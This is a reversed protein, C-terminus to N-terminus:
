FLTNYNFNNICIASIDFSTTLARKIGSQLSEINNKEVVYGNIGEYIISNFDVCNTAIVPVGLTLAELVVNPFGETRSSMIFLDSAKIYPYPNPKHGMLIINEHLGNKDILSQLYDRYGVEYREEGLIRVIIHNNSNILPIVAKILIDFGKISYLAGVAIINFESKSINEAIPEQSQTRVYDKDILNFIVKVKQPSLGYSKIIDQRMYETQAIVMDMEKYLLPYIYHLLKGKISTEYIESPTVAVRTYIKFNNKTIFRVIPLTYAITGHSTFVSHPRFERILKCLQKLAQRMHPRNAFAIPILPDINCKESACTYFVKIEYKSLDLSNIINIFVREAGGGSVSTGVFLIKHKM